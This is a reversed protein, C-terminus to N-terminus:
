DNPRNNAVSGAGPAAPPGAPLIRGTDPFQQFIATMCLRVDPLQM